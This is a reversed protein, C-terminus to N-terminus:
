RRNRARVDLRAFLGTLSNTVTDLKLRLTKSAHSYSKDVIKWPQPDPFDVLDIMDGSRCAWVPVPGITPHELQPVHGEGLPRITLDGSRQPLKQDNMWVYGIQVAAHDLLPHGVTLEEWREEGHRNLENTPSTDVLLASEFDCGSGPPGVTRSHGDPTEYAVVVGNVLSTAQRGAPTWHAGGQIRAIWPATSDWPQWWFTDDEWVEWRWQFWANIEEVAQLRKFGSDLWALQDIVFSTNDRISGSPGTTYNLGAAGVIHALADHGYVGPLAGAIDRLTLGHDGYLALANYREQTGVTPTTDGSAFVQLYVRRRATTLALTRLTDDLTLNYTEIAPPATDSDTARLAPVNFATFAGTRAGRYGFKGVKVGAPMEQWAQGRWGNHLLEGPVDFVLGGAVLGVQIKQQDQGDDAIQKKRWLPPDGWRSMDQDVILERYPKAVLKVRRGIANVGISVDDGLASPFHEQQGEFASRGLPKTRGHVTLKDVLALDPWDRRPDRLLTFSADAFGGPSTDHIELDQPIGDADPDDEAWRSINGNAHEAIVYLRDDVPEGTVAAAPVSEPTTFTQDEGYIIPGLPAHRAVAVFHYTAGPTLGSIVASIDVPDEGAALPNQAAFVVTGYSTTPGYLFAVLTAPGNPNVVGHLKANRPNVLSAADTEVSPPQVATLTGATDTEGAQGLTAGTAAPAPTLTGGSDSEAGQELDIDTAGPTPSFAAAADSETAQEFPVDITADPSLEGAADSEGAQQLTGDIPGPAPTAEGASDTEAAQELEGSPAEADPTSEGATDVEQAQELGVGVAGPGPTLSGASDTEQAQELDVDQDAASPGFMGAHTIAQRRDRAVVNPYLAFAHEIGDLFNTTGADAAALGAAIATNTLTQNTVTGLVDVGDLEMFHGGAGNKGVWLDHWRGLIVPVTSKVIDGVSNRRFLVKNDASDTRVIPGNAGKDYLCHFVGLADVKFRVHISLTDGVNFESRHAIQVKDDVGDFAVGTSADNPIGIAQGFTVGGSYVGSAGGVEDVAATGSTEDLMLAVNPSDAMLEDRLSLGSPVVERLAVAAAGAEETTVTWGATFGGGADVSTSRIFSATQSGFDFEAQETMGSGAAISGVADQGSHLAAYTLTGVSTGTNMVLAPNAGTSQDLWAIDEIAIKSGAVDSVVTDVRATRSSGTSNTDVLVTQAGAPPDALFYIYIAGDESGTPHLFPSGLVEVMPVGGYTVGDVQDTANTNQVVRVVAGTGGVASGRTHTASLDGTGSGLDTSADHAIAM